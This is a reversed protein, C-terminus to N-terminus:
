RQRQRGREGLYDTEMIGAIERIRASAPIDKREVATDVNRIAWMFKTLAAAPTMNGASIAGLRLPAAAPQYFEIFDPKIPYRGTILVPIQLDRAKEIAPLLSYKGVVPVNGLGLSEILIGKILGTDLLTELYSPDFGPYQSIKFINEEFGARLEWSPNSRATRGQARVPLQFILEEGITAVPGESPAAFAAFRYDDIKETCVARLVADNFVIVVERLTEAGAAAVMAARLINAHADAHLKTVPAQSGTFVVPFPLDPGLAFAVASALYAMTDTGAVVLAGAIDEARFGHIEKAVSVWDTPVINAGDTPKPIPTRVIPDIVLDLNPIQRFFSEPNDPSVLRGDQDVDMGLTGGLNVVLVRPRKGVSRARRGEKSPAAAVVRRTRELWRMDFVRRYIQSRLRVGDATEAVLGTAMLTMATIDDMEPPPLNNLLAEYVRSAGSTRHHLEEFSLLIKEPQDFHVPREGPKRDPGSRWTAILDAILDRVESVSGIRDEVVRELILNTLFPQGGTNALVEAAIERRGHPDPLHILGESFSDIVDPDDVTFDTVKLYVFQEYKPLDAGAALDVPRNLGILVLRLHSFPGGRAIDYTVDLLFEWSRGFALVRDLEDIFITTRGDSAPFFELLFDKLLLVSSHREAAAIRTQWWDEFEDGRGLARALSTMLKALFQFPGPDSEGHPLVERLDIGVVRGRAEMAAAARLALSSKGMQRCGYLVLIKNGDIKALARTLEADVPRSVYILGDDLPVEGTTHYSRTM